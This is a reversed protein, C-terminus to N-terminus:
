SQTVQKQNRQIIFSKSYIALELVRYPMTPSFTLNSDLEHSVKVYKPRGQIDPQPLVQQALPQPPSLPPSAPLTTGDPNQDWSCRTGRVLTGCDHWPQIADPHCVCM